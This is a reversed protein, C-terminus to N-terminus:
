EDPALKGLAVPAAAPDVSTLPVIKAVPKVGRLLRGGGRRRRVEHRELFEDEGSM